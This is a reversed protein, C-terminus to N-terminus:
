RSGGQVIIKYSKTIIVSSNPQKEIKYATGSWARNVVTFTNRDEFGKAGRKEIRCLTDSLLQIRIDGVIICADNKYDRGSQLFHFKYVLLAFLCLVLLLLFVSSKFLIDRKKLFM